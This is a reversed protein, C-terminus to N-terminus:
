ENILKPEVCCCCQRYFFSYIVDKSENRFEGSVVRAGGGRAVMSAMVVGLTVQMVSCFVTMRSTQKNTTKAFFTFLTDRRADITVDGYLNSKRVFTWFWLEPTTKRGKHGNEQEEESGTTEAGESTFRSSSLANRSSVGVGGREGGEREGEREDIPGECGWIYGGRENLGPPGCVCNLESVRLFSIPEWCLRQDISSFECNRQHEGNLCVSWIETEVDIWTSGTGERWAECRLVPLYRPQLRLRQLPDEDEDPSYPCM